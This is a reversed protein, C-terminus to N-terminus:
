FNHDYHYNDLAYQWLQDVNTFVPIDSRKVWRAFEESTIVTQHYGSGHVHQKKFYITKTEQFRNAYLIEILYCESQLSPLYFIPSDPGAFHPTTDRVSEIMKPDYPCIHACASANINNMHITSAGMWDGRMLSHVVFPIQVYGPRDRREFGVTEIKLFGVQLVTFIKRSKNILQLGDLDDVRWEIDPLFERSTYIVVKQSIRLAIISVILSVAAIVLSTLNILQETPM